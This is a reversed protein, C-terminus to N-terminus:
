PRDLRDGHWTSASSLHAIAKRRVKPDPNCVSGLKYDDDQFVNPNVAGIGVGDSRAHKALAAYDDVRDWPIHLAM